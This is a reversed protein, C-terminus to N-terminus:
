SHKGYQNNWNSYVHDIALGKDTAYFSVKVKCGSCGTTVDYFTYTMQTASSHKTISEVVLFDPHNGCFKCRLIPRLKLRKM